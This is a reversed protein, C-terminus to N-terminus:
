AGGATVSARPRVDLAVPLTFSFTAGEGPRSEVWFDGGFRNIIRRSIPLGLGSGQPKDTL